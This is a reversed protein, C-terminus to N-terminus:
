EGGTKKYYNTRGDEEVTCFGSIGPCDLKAIKAPSDVLIFRRSDGKNSRLAHCVLAEQGAEVCAVEYLEGDAFFVLKVPFDAPAHYEVRGIFDLLVWVARVLAGDTKAPQGSPFYGGDNKQFIRGQRELHSLLAKATDEKGPHFCLLQQESLGPYMTVTRLLDAAENGYIEARTKM